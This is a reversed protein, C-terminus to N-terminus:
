HSSTCRWNKGGHSRKDGTSYSRYAEWPAYSVARSSPLTKLLDTGNEASVEYYSVEGLNVEALYQEPVTARIIQGYDFDTFGSGVPVVMELNFQGNEEYKVTSESPHIRIGHQQFDTILPNTGRPWLEIM